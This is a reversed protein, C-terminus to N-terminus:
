SIQSILSQAINSINISWNSNTSYKSNVDQISLGSYYIDGVMLYNEKLCKATQLLNLEKTMANIGISSDSYVGFGTLNNDRIARNSYGWGSEEASLSVMFIANIGYDNEIKLYTDELGSLGTNRLLKVLTEKTVNSKELLNNPNYVVQGGNQIVTNLVVQSSKKNIENIQKNLDNLKVNLDNSNNNINEKKDKLSNLEDVYKKYINELNNENKNSNQISINKLVSVNQMTSINKLLNSVNNSNLVTELMQLDDTKKNFTNNYLNRKNSTEKKSDVIKDKINDIKNQTDNIQNNIDDIQNNNDTIKDQIDEVQQVLTDNNNETASVKISNFKFSNIALLSCIMLSCIKKKNM